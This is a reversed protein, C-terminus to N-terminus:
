EGKGRARFLQDTRARSEHNSETRELRVVRKPQRRRVSLWLKGPAGAGTLM